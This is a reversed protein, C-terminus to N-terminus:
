WREHFTTVDGSELAEDGYLYDNDNVAGHVWPLVGYYHYPGVGNHGGFITRKTLVFFHGADRERYSKIQIVQKRKVPLAGYIEKILDKKIIRDSLPWVISISQNQEIFSVAEKEYGAPSFFLSAKPWWASKSLGLWSLAMIGIYGGKSHGLFLVKEDNIRNGYDKLLRITYGAYDQGMRHWDQDFFGKDYQPHFVAFGQAVLAKYLELYNSEDLAQGHGFVILPLNTKNTPLYLFSDRGGYNVKKVELGGRSITPVFGPHSIDTPASPLAFCNMVILYPLIFSIFLKVGIKMQEGQGSVYRKLFIIM